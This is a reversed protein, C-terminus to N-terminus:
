IICFIARYIPRGITRGPSSRLIRHDPARRKLFFFKSLNESIKNKKFNIKQHVKKLFFSDFRLGLNNFNICNRYICIDINCIRFCDKHKNTVIPALHLKDYRYCRFNFKDLNYGQFKIRTFEKLVPHQMLSNCSCSTTRKCLSDRSLWLLERWDM